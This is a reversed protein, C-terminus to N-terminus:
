KSEMIKKIVKLEQGCTCYFRIINKGIGCGGYLVKCTPCQYSTIEYYTKRSMIEVPKAYKTIKM